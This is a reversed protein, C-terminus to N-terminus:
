NENIHMKLIEIATLLRFCNIDIANFYFNFNENDLSKNSVIQNIILCIVIGDNEATSSAPITIIKWEKSYDTDIKDEMILSDQNTDDLCLKYNQNFTLKILEKFSETSTSIIETIDTFSIFTNYIIFQNINTDYTLLCWNNFSYHIPILL